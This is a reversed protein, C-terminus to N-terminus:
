RDEIEGTYNESVGDSGNWAEIVELASRGGFLRRLRRIAGKSFVEINEMPGRIFGYDGRRITVEPDGIYQTMARACRMSCAGVNMVASNVQVIKGGLDELQKALSARFDRAAIEAHGEEPTAKVIAIGEKSYVHELEPPLGEQSTIVVLRPEVAGSPTKVEVESMIATFNKNKIYGFEKFYSTFQALLTSWGWSAM